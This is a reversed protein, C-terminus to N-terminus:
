SARFYFRFDKGDHLMAFSSTDADRPAGIIRLTPISQHGFEYRSTRRNFGFQDLTDASGRQFFYLSYVSGDHLMAWRNWDTDSPAGAIPINPTSNHGFEYDTSNGIFAAQNLSQAQGTASLACFMALATIYLTFKM